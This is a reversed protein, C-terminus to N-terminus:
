LVPFYVRIKIKSSDNVPLNADLYMEYEASVQILHKDVIYRKMAAYVLSRQSFSGTYIATLMRGKPMRIIRISPKDVQLSRNVPIGLMVSVSDNPIEKYSVCYQQPENSAPLLGQMVSFSDQIGVFLEKKSSLYQNVLFITDTVQLLEFPYGYHAIPDELYNRLGHITKINETPALFPIIRFLLRSPSSVNITVSDPSLQSLVTFSFYSFDGNGRKEVLYSLPTLMKVKYSETGANITFTKAEKNNILEVSSSDQQWRERIEPFWNKWNGPNKVQAIANDFNAAIRIQESRVVPIFYCIALLGLLTLIILVAKM